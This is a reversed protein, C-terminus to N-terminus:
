TSSALGIRRRPLLFMLKTSSLGISSGRRKYNRSSRLSTTTSQRRKPESSSLVRPSSIYVVRSAVALASLV